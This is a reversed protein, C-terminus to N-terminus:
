IQLTKLIWAFCFQLSMLLKTRILFTRKRFLIPKVKLILVKLQCLVLFYLFLWKNVKFVKLKSTAIFYDKKQKWKYSRTLKLKSLTWYGEKKAKMRVQIINTLRKKWEFKNWTSCVASVRKAPFDSSMSPSPIFFGGGRGAGRKSILKKLVQKYFHL